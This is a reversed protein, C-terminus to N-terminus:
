LSRSDSAVVSAFAVNQQVQEIEVTPQQGPQTDPVIVVYGRDVKAIGDGQDGVTEITVERVEGEEVPPEPSERQHDPQARGASASEHEDQASTPADFVAIRYTEGLSVADYSLEGSPVELVYTGDREHVTASFVSRLSDPIEVM